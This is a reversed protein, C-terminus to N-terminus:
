NRTSCFACGKKFPCAACHELQPKLIGSACNEAATLVRSKIEDFNKCVREKFIGERLFATTTKIEEHGTLEHAVLAYFDLQSEYLGSPANDIATIKYDILNNEYIADIAGALATHSDLRLNFKKERQVDERTRLTLGLASAAFKTLWERLTSKTKPSRWIKRLQAPIRTIMERDNLYYELEAEFNENRPWRALIWHTLTGLDAGGIFNEDTEFNQEREGLEWSLTRGQRYRRRWAFPCWEFLSFASASFQRLSNKTKIIEVPAWPNENESNQNQIEPIEVYEAFNIKNKLKEDLNKLLFDTWSNKYPEQNKDVLGCFILSDQARTAAVYFLRTEEELDGEDALLTEWKSCQLRTEDKKIEDPLDSFVIGLDRSPRLPRNDIRKNKQTDFIIAVPYELGKSSHVTGLRVANENEDHWKPEEFKISSKVARTLWEACATLSSTGSQQFARSMSLALRFNRLVRLRDQERYCSLWRRDKDFISLVGAPGENEGIIALYELRSYSDPFNEKILDILKKEKSMLTLVKLADEELIEAFPSMLWGAVAFSDNVDAAARLLCVVDGIEGRTFFDESRDRILPINFKEFADEIQSYVSRSRLLISFDSFKVPRIIEQAKDWVTRGENVWNFIEAALNEALLKRADDLTEQNEVLIVKFDPMSGDDRGGDKLAADISEYKLERMVDSKGLGDLWLSSFIKNIKDLLSKRTRFSVNLNVRKDAKKITEAFLSPDAHRFKYISQKPDGVAFLSAESNKILAEIMQFQLPDTDQFEDVLVHTFKRRSPDNDIASRAYLIMDTFSLLGRRRKMLDWMGWSVACFKLLTKRMQLEEPAIEKDFNRSIEKILDPRSERWNGLTMGLIQKLTAFPEYKNATIKKDEDIVIVQYFNKLAEIDLISNSKQWNLLKNLRGGPGEPNKAQPLSIEEFIKWVERWEDALIVEVAPRTREILLDNIDNESWALMQEWTHGSSSHLEATVRAFDSLRTANWRNVAHTFYSDQDLFEANERLVRDGYTRALERLNAFAAANKIGEWFEQEQQATIVDATPDIDLSLGSERIIRGAFAHITSIWTDSLGDSIERKREEDFNSLESNIRAIIRTKMEAAAAETFTLTLIDAPIIKNEELLRIYRSTLVWTKGTGAGAGVTIIKDNAQIADRQGEPTDPPLTFKM